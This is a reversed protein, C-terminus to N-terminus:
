TASWTIPMRARWRARRQLNAYRGATTQALKLNTQATELDAKAQQLQQDVEPTEIEALLEGAQVRTGIDAYWKKLYGSTRAYIPADILPQTNGPLVLTASSRGDIESAGGFRDSGRVAANRAGARERASVRQTIGKYVFWGLVAAVALLILSFVSASGGRSNTGRDGARESAPGEPSRGFRKRNRICEHTSDIEDSIFRNIGKADPDRQRGAHTLQSASQFRRARLVADRRDRM